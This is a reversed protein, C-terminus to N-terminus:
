INEDEGKIGRTAEAIVNNIHVSYEASKDEILQLTPIHRLKVRSKLLHRIFNASNRLADFVEKRKDEDGYYSIMVKAYGLDGSVKVDSVTIIGSIRPDKLEFLIIESIQKRLEANVRDPNAM